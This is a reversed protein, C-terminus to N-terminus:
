RWPIRISLILGAQVYNIQFEERFLPLLLPIIFLYVDNYAHGLANLKLKSMIEKKNSM